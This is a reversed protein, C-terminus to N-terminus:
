GDGPGLEHVEVFSDGPNLFCVGVEKDAGTNGQAVGIAGSIHKEVKSQSRVEVDSIDSEGLHHEDVPGLGLLIRILLVAPVVTPPHFEHVSENVDIDSGTFTGDSSVAVELLGAFELASGSGVRDSLNPVLGKGANGSVVFASVVPSPVGALIVFFELHM